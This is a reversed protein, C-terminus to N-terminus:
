HGKHRIEGSDDKVRDRNFWGLMRSWTRMWKRYAWRENNEKKM